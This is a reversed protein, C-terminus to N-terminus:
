RRFSKKIKRYDSNVSLLFFYLRFGDAKNEINEFIHEWNRDCLEYQNCSQNSSLVLGRIKQEVPLANIKDFDRRINSRDIKNM